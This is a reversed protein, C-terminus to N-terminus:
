SPTPSHPLFYGLKQESLVLDHHPPLSPPLSASLCIVFSFELTKLGGFHLKSCPQRATLTSVFSCGHTPVPVKSPLLTSLLSSLFSENWWIKRGLSVRSWCWLRNIWFTNMLSNSHAWSKEFLKQPLPAPERSYLWSTTGPSYVVNCAWQLGM